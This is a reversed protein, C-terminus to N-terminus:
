NQQTHKRRADVANALEAVKLIHRDPMNHVTSSSDVGVISMCVKMM